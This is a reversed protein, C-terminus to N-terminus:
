GLPARVNERVAARYNDLAAPRMDSVRQAIQQHHRRDSIHHLIARISHFIGEALLVGIIIDPWLIPHMM